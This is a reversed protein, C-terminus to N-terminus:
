FSTTSLAEASDFLIRSLPTKILNNNGENGGSNESLYCAALIMASIGVAEMQTNSFINDMKSDGRQYETLEFPFGHMGLSLCNDNILSLNTLFSTGGCGSGALCAVLVESKLLEAGTFFGNEFILPLTLLLFLIESLFGDCLTGVRTGQEKRSWSLPSSLDRFAKWRERLLEEPCPIVGRYLEPLLKSPLSMDFFLNEGPFHRDSLLKCLTDWFSRDGSNLSRVKGSKVQGKVTSVFSYGLRCALDIGRLVVLPDDTVATWRCPRLIKRELDEVGRNLDIVSPPKSSFLASLDFALSNVTYDRRLLNDELTEGSSLRSFSVIGDARDIQVQNFSSDVFRVPLKLERAVSAAVPMVDVAALIDFGAPRDGALLDRVAGGVLWPGGRPSSLSVALTQILPNAAIKALADLGM